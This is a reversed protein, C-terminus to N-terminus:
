SSIVFELEKALVVLPINNKSLREAMDKFTFLVVGGDVGPIGRSQKFMYGEDVGSAKRMQRGRKQTHPSCGIRM